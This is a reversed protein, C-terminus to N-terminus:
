GNMISEMAEIVEPIYEKNFIKISRKSEYKQMATEFITRAYTSDSNSVYNQILCADYSVGGSVGGPDGIPFSDVGTWQSLPCMVNGDSDEFHDVAHYAENIVKGITFIDSSTGADRMTKVYDDSSFSGGEVKHVLIRQLLPDYDYVLGRVGTFTIGDAHTYQLITDNIKITPFVPQTDDDKAHIFLANGPHNDKTNRETARLSLSWDFYPNFIDNFLLIVWGLTPDNYVKGAVSDPTDGDNIQFDELSSMSIVSQKNFVVRSFIDTVNITKGDGSPYTLIPFKEFYHM